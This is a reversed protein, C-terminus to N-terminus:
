PRLAHAHILMYPQAAPTTHTTTNHTTLQLCSPPHSDKKAAAPLIGGRNKTDAGELWRSCHSSAQECCVWPPLRTHPPPRTNTNAATTTARVSCCIARAVYTRSARTNLHDYPTHGAPQVVQLPTPQSEAMAHMCWQAHSLHPVLHNSSCIACDCCFHPSTVASSLHAKASGTKHRTPRDTSQAVAAHPSWQALDAGDLHLM